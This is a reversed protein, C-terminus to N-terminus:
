EADRESNPGDSVERPTSQAPRDLIVAIHAEVQALGREFPAREEAPSGKVSLIRLATKLRNVERKAERLELEEKTTATTRFTVEVCMVVDYLKECSGCEAVEEDGDNRMKTGDWWDENTEGCHPCVPVPTWETEYESM